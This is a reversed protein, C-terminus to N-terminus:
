AARRISTMLRRGIEDADLNNNINNTMYVNIDHGAGLGESEFQKAIANAMPTAWDEVNRQLPIVAERGAEGIIATTADTVVGGQALRPIHGFNTHKGGIGPVWDPVQIANIKDIVRNIADIIANIPAKIAGGISIMINKVIGLLGKIGSKVGNWLGNFFGKIRNVVSKIIDSARRVGATIGNWLGKFINAIPTVVVAKIWAVIPSMIAKAKNVAGSLVGGIAGVVNAFAQKVGDFVGSFWNGISNAVGSFWSMIGNLVEKLAPKIATWLSKLLTKVVRIIADIFAGIITPLYPILAEILMVLGDALIPTIEPLMEAIAVFLTVSAEILPPLIEKILPPLYKTIEKVIKPLAKGIGQIARVIAPLLNGFVGKNTSTGDGFISTILNDIYPAIDAEGNALMTTLNEWSAKAMNMSGQITTGAERATTGTIHLNDQVVHIAEVIDGYSSVDYKVGSIKEADKLLRQMETRTGGYGLKLNDLMTFNGKSFGQYANKINEIDTGMKNANDSMDQIAKDALQAAKATNGGTSQVLAGAFSTSLEMYKNASMGATKYADDAMALVDQEVDVLNDVMDYYEDEVEAISKGAKKAFQEIPMASESGYLTAVGGILQEYQSYQNIADKTVKVIAASASAVGASIGKAIAKGAGVAGSGIKAFATKASRETEDLQGKAQKGDFILRIIAEGVVSM